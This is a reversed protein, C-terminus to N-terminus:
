RPDSPLRVTFTAGNGPESVVELTGGHMEVIRNSVTLGLGVGDDKSTVFPELIRAILDGPIGEGTDSVAMVVQGSADRAATVRVTGGAPTAQLANVLLNLLVQTLENARGNVVVTPDAEIELRVRNMRFQGRVLVATSEVLEAVAVRRQPAEHDRAAGLYSSLLALCRISEKEILRFLRASEPSDPREAGVQAFGVIGTMANRAEHIVGAGVAGIATLRQLHLLRSVLADLRGAMGHQELVHILDSGLIANPDSPDDASM